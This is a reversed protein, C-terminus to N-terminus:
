RFGVVLRDPWRDLRRQISGEEGSEPLDAQLQVLGVTLCFQQRQAHRLQEAGRHDPQCQGAPRVRQRRHMGPCEPDSVGRCWDIRQERVTLTTLPRATGTLEQGVAIGIRVRGFDFGLVTREATDAIGTVM